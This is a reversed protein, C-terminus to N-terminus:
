ASTGARTASRSRRQRVNKVERKCNRVHTAAISIGLSVNGQGLQFFLKHDVPHIMVSSRLKATGPALLKPGTKRRPREDRDNVKM